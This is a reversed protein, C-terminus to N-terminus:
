FWLRHLFTQKWCTLIFCSLPCIPRIELSFWLLQRYVIFIGQYTYVFLFFDYNLRSSAKWLFFYRTEEISIHGNRQIRVLTKSFHIKYLFALQMFFQNKNWLVMKGKGSLASVYLTIHNKSEVEEDLNKNLAKNIEDRDINCKVM